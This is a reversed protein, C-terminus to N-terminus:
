PQGSVSVFPLAIVEGPYILDPDGSHLRHLNHDILSRWYGAVQRSTVRRGTLGELRNRAILWLNDGEEVTVTERQVGASRDFPLRVAVRADSATATESAVIATTAAAALLAVALLRRAKTGM